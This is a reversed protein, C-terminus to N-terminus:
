KAKLILMAEHLLEKHRKILKYIIRYIYGIPMLWKHKYFFPYHYKFVNISPFLRKFCYRIKGITKSNSKDVEDSIVNDLNGYTGSLVFRKLFLLSDEDMSELQIVNETLFYRECFERCKKEYDLLELECLINEVYDWDLTPKNKLFVFRDILSRLGTGGEVYHKYEHTTIYIYFDEDTFHYGYKNNDDKVLIQKVNRFYLEWKPNAYYSAFLSMHMEFNYFPKKIFADDKGDHNAKYGRSIMYDWIIKQFRDDFLIDNDSMERMVPDPYMDKLLVGKLPLYWIKNDELFSIIKNREVDMAVSKSAILLLDHEWKKYLDNPLIINQKKLCLLTIATLSHAKSLEYLDYLNIEKESIQIAKNNLGCLIVYLLNIASELNNHM